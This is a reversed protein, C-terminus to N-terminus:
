QGPDDFMESVDACTVARAAWRMLTTRDKTDLIRTRDASSFAVGRGELLDIVLEAAAYVLGERFGEAWGQAWGEARAETRMAEVVPNRKALLARAVADDTKGKGILAAIPLPVELAPDEIHGAPDLERWISAAASWELARPQESDIAFIRRVGRGTLKAARATVMELSDTSVVQFALQEIRRGGTDPDPAVPYVSVDAAIDDIESTRTLLRFAAEFEAGTHADIMVCLQLLQRGRPRDAAPVHVLKGDHIEYRTGPAILRDDVSPRAARDRSVEFPM